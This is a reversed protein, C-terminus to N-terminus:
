QFQDTGQRLAEILPDARSSALQRATLALPERDCSCKQLFGLDKDEIFGGRTEVGIGFFQDESVHKSREGFRSHQHYGM